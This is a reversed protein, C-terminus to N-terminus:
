TQPKMKGERYMFLTEKDSPNNQKLPTIVINAREKRDEEIHDGL